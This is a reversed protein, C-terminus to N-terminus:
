RKVSVIYAEGKVRRGGLYICVTSKVKEERQM